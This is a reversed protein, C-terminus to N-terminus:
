GGADSIWADAPLGRRPDHPAWVIRRRLLLTAAHRDPEAEPASPQDPWPQLQAGAARLANMASLAAADSGARFITAVPVADECVPVAPLGTRAAVAASLRRHLAIRAEAIRELAGSRIAAAIRHRALGSMWPEGATPPILGPTDFGLPPLAPPRPPPRRVLARVRRKAQGWLWGGVAPRAPRLAPAAARLAAATDGGRAVLVAGDPVALYKRPSYLVLDGSRGIAGAPRLVQTADELLLCSHEDCFARAADLAAVRGAYHVLLFLAPPAARAAARCADWDPDLSPAMPYYRATAGAARAPDLASDCYYGPAWVVPPRGLRAAAALAALAIGHRAQSLLHLDDAHQQWVDRFEAESRM